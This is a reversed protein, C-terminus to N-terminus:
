AGQKTSSSKRMSRIKQQLASVEVQEAVEGIQSEVKARRSFIPFLPRNRCLPWIAQTGVLVFVLVLFLLELLRLVVSEGKTLLQLLLPWPPIRVRM